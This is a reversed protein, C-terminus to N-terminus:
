TKVQAERLHRGITEHLADNTALVAGTALMQDRGDLDAVLGSSWIPKSGTPM